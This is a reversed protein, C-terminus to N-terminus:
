NEPNYIHLVKVDWPPIITTVKHPSVTEKSEFFKGFAEQSLGINEFTVKQAQDTENFLLVLRESGVRRFSPHKRKVHAPMPVKKRELVLVM